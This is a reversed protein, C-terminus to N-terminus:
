SEIFGIDDLEADSMASDLAIEIDNDQTTYAERLKRLTDVDLKSSDVKPM